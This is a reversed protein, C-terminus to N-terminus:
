TQETVPERPLWASMTPPRLLLWLVGAGVGFVTVGGIVDTVFHNGTILVVTVTCVPYLVGFLRAYWRRVLWCIMGGCWLAWAVHLSPFAAYEAATHSMAEQSLSGLSPFDALTDVMHPLLRPPAVPFVYFLTFGILTPVALLFRAYPFAERHRVFVWIIVLPTFVTHMIIYYDNAITALVSHAVLWHNLPGEAAIGLHRELRLIAHANRMAPAPSVNITRQIFTYVGFGVGIILLEQWWRAPALWWPSRAQVASDTKEDLM